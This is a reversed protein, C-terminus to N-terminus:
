NWHKTGTATGITGKGGLTGGTLSVNELDLKGAGSADLEGYNIITGALDLEGFAATVTTGAAITVNNLASDTNGIATAITGQGGLTGGNITVNELNLVSGPDVQILNSNDVVLGALTAGIPSAIELIGVSGIKVIGNSITTGDDLILTTTVNTDVQITGKTNDIAVGDFTSSAASEVLITGANGLNGGAVTTGNLTLGSGADVVIKGANSVHVSTLTAGAASSVELTGLSGVTLSGNAITTGDDVILTAPSPSSGGEVQITGGTNDVRVNDLTAGSSSEVLVDGSNTLAGGAISTGHELTLAGTVAIAATLNAVVEADWANGSGSVNIQGSNNLAGNQLSALGT